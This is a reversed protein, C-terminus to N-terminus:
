QHTKRYDEVISILEEVFNDYQTGPQWYDRNQTAVYYISRQITGGYLVFPEGDIELIAFPRSQINMDLTEPNGDLGALMGTYWNRNNVTTFVRFDKGAKGGYVDSSLCSGLVVADDDNTYRKYLTGAQILKCGRLKGTLLTGNILDECKQADVSTFFRIGNSTFNVRISTGEYMFFDDLEEIRDALYCDYQGDFTDDIITLHWVYMHTPYSEHESNGKHYKFTTVIKADTHEIWAICYEDLVYPKGDVEVIAGPKITGTTDAEPDFMVPYLTKKPELITLCGTSVTVTYNNNEKYSVKYSYKGVTEGSDRSVSVGLSSVDVNGHKVTILAENVPDAEGCYKFADDVSIVIEAPDITFKGNEIVIDYNNNEAVSGIIVYSGVTEGQERSLTVDLPDNPYMGLRYYTLEPDEEGYVKDVDRIVVTARRKAISWNVDVSGTYNGTATVTLTYNGANTGTNGTVTYPIGHAVIVKQTLEKNSYVLSGDLKVDDECLQKPTITLEGDIVTVNYNESEKVTAIITYVGVNEGAERSFTIDLHDVGFLETATATFVPDASGYIKAVADVTVTVDAKAIYWILEVTGAYNGTGIVKMTHKGAYIGQNGTVEYTIGETVDIEQTQRIGNYVLEGKLKVDAVTIQKASITFTGNEITIDYNRNEAVAAVIKYEGVNEGVTRSVSVALTDNGFLGTTTATLAPDDEGYIKGADNAVVSASAKAISWDMNVSGAYNGTGTVTLTYDGANTGTNGFVEYTIGDTVIIAQTQETGNYTLTGDLKVDDASIQKASITLQANNVVTINYNANEAVAATIAYEGVDEGSERTYSVDLIDGDALAGSTIEYTFKPDQEGYVKVANQIEVTIDVPIIEFVADDSQARLVYHKSDTLEAVASIAYKGVNEGEERCANVKVADADALENGLHDFYKVTYTLEPDAEGYTKSKDNLVVEVQIPVIKLVSESTVTKFHQSYSIAYVEYEGIEAPLDANVCITGNEPLSKLEAKIAILAKRIDESLELKEMEGILMVVAEALEKGSYQEILTSLQVDGDFDVDLIRALSNILYQADEEIRFNITNNVRDIVVTVFDASGPNKVNVMHSNGDWTVTTDTLDFYLDKKEIVVLGTDASPYYDSDTVIGYYAYAGPETYAINDNFTLSVGEPLKNLVVLIEDITANLKDIAATIEAEDFGANILGEAPIKAVLDDRYSTIFDILYTTDIGEQKFEHEALAEDLWRPFDINVNGYIADVGVENINGNVYAGGSILTYDAPAEVTVTHGKGNYVVTKGTVSITSEAPEIVMLGIAGGLHATSGNKAADRYEAIVAYLGAQTPAETSNYEKLNTQLGVYRVSLTGDAPSIVEGSITVRIAMSKPTNDFDFKQENNVNGNADIFEVVATAPVIAIPRAILDSVVMEAGVKLEIYALEIFAGNPLETANNTVILTGTKDVGIFQYTIMATAADDQSGTEVDYATADLDTYNLMERTWIYEENEFNWKLEHADVDPVIVLIGVDASPIHDSDTVIAAVAYAGVNKVNLDDTFTLKVDAPMENLLKSVNTIANKLSNVIENTAGMEELKASIDPIKAVLKDSFEGVTIGNKVSPAYQAILADVWKPFDINVTGGIAAWGNQAFSGDTAIAATIITTDPILGVVASGVEIQILDAVARDTGTYEVITDEVVVTSETPAIILTALDAGVAIVEGRSDKEMYTASVLYVGGNVPPESSNYTATNTKIGTYTITLNSKDLTLASGNYVLEVDLGADANSFEHTFVDKEEGNADVIHVEVMNPVIAFARVIPVAYYFENGFEAIFAMQTYAGNGLSKELEEPDTVEKNFLKAVLEGNKDLGFFLNNVQASATPNVEAFTEDNYASAGLNINQLLEPTFIGNTDNYNWDLYVREASPKIVIYGVDFTTEYNPNTSVAGYLYAGIDTPYKGNINIVIDGTETIGSITQLAQRLAAISSDELPELYKVLDSLSMDIGDDPVLNSLVGLLDEPIILQVQGNLGTIGDSNVDLQAIDLGILFQILSNTIDTKEGYKNGLSVTSQAIPDYGSGYEVILNPLNLKAGAKKVTVTFTASSSKYTEDGDFSFTVNYAAESVNAGEMTFPDSVELCTINAGDVKTNGSEDAAVFAGILAALEEDTYDKYMVSVNNGFVFSPKRLDKLTVDTEGEIYMANSKYTVKIAETESGDPNRGFVHAGNYIAAQTIATLITNLKATAAKISNTGGLLGGANEYADWVEALKEDNLYAIVANELTPASKIADNLEENHELDVELWLPAMKLEYTDGLILKLIGKFTSNINLKEIDVKHTIADRAKYTVTYTVDNALVPTKVVTNYLDDNKVETMKDHYNMVRDDNFVFKAESFNVIVADDNTPAFTYTYVFANNYAGNGNVGEIGAVFTLSKGENMVPVAQITGSFDAATSDFLYKGNGLDTLGTFSVTDGDNAKNVTITITEIADDAGNGNVDNVWKAVYTVDTTVFESVAPAWGDFKFGPKTPDEIVPTNLGTLINEFIVLDTEGDNYIVTFHDETADDIENGNFDEAWVSEFDVSDNVTFPFTIIETTGKVAWGLFLYRDKSLSSPASIAEGKIIKNETEIGDFTVTCLESWQAIYTITNGEAPAVVKDAVEGWGAFFYGENTVVPGAPTTANWALEEFTVYSNGDADKGGNFDYKVTYTEEQDAIGNGNNDLNPTWTATYTADAIVTAAVAPSWGAFTYFTRIPDEITPTATNEAHQASYLTNNLGDTYSVTYLITTDTCNVTIKISPANQYNADAARNVRVTVTFSSSQADAPWAYDKDWSLYSESVNVATIDGSEPDTTSIHVNSIIDATVTEKSVPEKSEYTLETSDAAISLILRNDLVSISITDSVVHEGNKQVIFSQTDGVNFRTYMDIIQLWNSTEVDYNGNGTVMFVTYESATYNGAGFAQKLVKEKLGTLKGEGTINPNMYVKGTEAVSISETAFVARVSATENNAVTVTAPASLLYDVSGGTSDTDAPTATVNIVNGGEVVSDFLVTYTGDNNNTITASSSTLTVNGNGEITIAITATENKDAVNNNNTDALWQAELIVNGDPVTGIVSGNTWGGFVAYEKDPDAPSSVTQNQTANIYQTNYEAGDVKFTVTYVTDQSYQATYTVAGSVSAFAPSWGNPSQNEKIAHSPAFDAPNAGYALETTTDVDGDGDTDWSIIFTDEEDAVGDGDEDNFPVWQATYTADATVTDAVDGWGAFTYYEKDAPDNPAPMAAGEVVSEVLVTNGDVVYKITFHTENDDDANNGNADKFNKISISAQASTGIVYQSGEVKVTYTATYTNGDGPDAYAPNASYTVSAGDPKSIASGDQATYTITVNGAVLQELTQSPWEAQSLTIDQATISSTPRSESLVVSVDPYAVNNYVIHFTAAEGNNLGALAYKGLTDTFAYYGNGVKVKITVTEATVDTASNATDVVATFINATLTQYYNDKTLDSKYFFNFPSSIDGTKYKVDETAQQRVEIFGGKGSRGVKVEYVGVPISDSDQASWLKYETGNAHVLTYYLAWGKSFGCDGEIFTFVTAQSITTGTTYIIYPSAATGSGEVTLMPVKSAYYSDAIVTAEGFKTIDLQALQENTLKKAEKIIADQKEKLSDLAAVYSEESNFNSTDLSQADPLANILEQVKTVNADEIQASTESEAAFTQVPIAGFAIVMALFLSLIRKWQGNM